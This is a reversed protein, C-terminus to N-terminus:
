SATPLIPSATNLPPTVVKRARTRRPADEDWTKREKKLTIMKKVRIVTM